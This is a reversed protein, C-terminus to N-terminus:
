APEWIITHNARLIRNTTAVPYTMETDPDYDWEVAWAQHHNDPQSGHIDVLQSRIWFEAEARNACLHQNIVTIGDAPKNNALYAVIM